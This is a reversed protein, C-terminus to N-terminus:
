KSAVELASSVTWPLDEVVCKEVLAVKNSGEVNVYRQKGEKNLSGVKIRALVKDGQGLLTAVMPKDLGYKSLQKPLDGEIASARLNVLSFLAASLRVKNAPGPKPALVAFQDENNAKTRSITVNSGQSDFALKAVEDSKAHVLQKDAFDAPSKDLDNVILNEVEYVPKQDERKAYAIAPGNNIGPRIPSFLITRTFKEHGNVADVKLTLRPPDLAFEHPMALSFDEAPVNTLRLNKLNTALREITETDAPSGNVRWQPGDKELVYPTETGTVELRRIEAGEPLEAVKKNRLDYASKDFPNKEWTDLVRVIDEGIKKVYIGHDFSNEVGFELGQEKGDDFVVKAIIRSHQLGYTKLDHDVGLDRKQKIRTFADLVQNIKQEDGAAQTPQTLRWPSTPTDRAVQVLNGPQVLDIVLVHNKDFDFLQDHKAQAEVKKEEDRGAWAAAVVVSGAVVLLAAVGAIAKTTQKMAM